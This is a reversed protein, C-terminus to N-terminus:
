GVRLPDANAVHFRSTDPKRQRVDAAQQDHAHDGGPCATSLGEPEVVVAGKWVRIVWGVAATGCMRQQNLCLRQYTKGIFERCYSQVNLMREGTAADM